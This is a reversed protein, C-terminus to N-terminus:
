EIRRHRLFGAAPGRVKPKILDYSARIMDCLDEVPVDGGVVITNWHTKNMHYAPRVGAFVTRLIEAEDPDCKVNVCLHGGREFILAFSRRNGRHRMVTWATPDGPEDFPYDEYSAPLSLCFDIIEQRTMTVLRM